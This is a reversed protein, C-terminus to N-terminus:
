WEIAAAAAIPDKAKSTSSANTGVFECFVIDAVGPRGVLRTIASFKAEHAVAADRSKRHLTCKWRCQKLEPPVDFCAEFEVRLSEWFNYSSVGKAGTAAPLSGYLESERLAAIWGMCQGVEAAIAEGRLRGERAADSLPGSGSDGETMREAKGDESAAARGQEFLAAALHIVDDFLDGM